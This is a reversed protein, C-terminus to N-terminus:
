TPEQPNSNWSGDPEGATGSCRESEGIHSWTQKARSKKNTSPRVGFRDALEYSRRNQAGGKFLLDIVDFGGHIGLGVAHGSFFACDIHGM